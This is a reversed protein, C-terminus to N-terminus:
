TSETGQAIDCRPPTGRVFDVKALDIPLEFREGRHWRRMLAVIGKLAGCRMSYSSFSRERVHFDSKSPGDLEIHFVEPTGDFLVRVVYAGPLGQEPTVETAIASHVLLHRPIRM